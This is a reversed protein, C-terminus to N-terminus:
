DLFLRRHNTPADPERPPPPTISPPQEDILEPRGRRLAIRTFSYRDLELAALVALDIALAYRRRAEADQALTLEADQGRAELAARRALLGEHHAKVAAREADLRALQEDLAEGHTRLLEQAALWADRAAIADRRRRGLRGLAAIVFTTGVVIAITFVFFQWVAGGGSSSEAGGSVASRMQTAGDAGAHRFGAVAFASLGLLLAGLLLLVWAPLSLRRPDRRRMAAAIRKHLVHAIVFLLGTIMGSLLFGTLVLGPSRRWEAGLHRPDIGVSDFYPLAFQVAEAFLFLGVVAAIALQWWLSPIRPLGRQSEPRGVTARPQLTGGALREQRDQKRAEIAVELGDLKAAARQAEVEVTRLDRLLAAAEAPRESALARVHAEPVHDLGDLGNMRDHDPRLAMQPLRAHYTAKRWKEFISLPVGAAVAHLADWWAGFRSRKVDPRFQQVTLTSTPKTM